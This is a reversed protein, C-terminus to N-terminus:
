KLKLESHVPVLPDTPKSGTPIVTEALKDVLVGTEPNVLIITPSEVRGGQSDSATEEFKAVRQNGSKEIGDFKFTVTYSGRDQNWSQGPKLGTSPFSFSTGLDKAGPGVFGETGVGQSSVIAGHLDLVTTLKFARLMSETVGTTPVDDTLSTEITAEATYRDASRSVKVAFQLETTRPNSGSFNTTTTSVYHYIVDQPAYRFTVPAVNGASPPEADKPQVGSLKGEKTGCGALLVPALAILM